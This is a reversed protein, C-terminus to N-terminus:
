EIRFVSWSQLLYAGAGTELPDVALILAFLARVKGDPNVRSATECRTDPTDWRPIGLKQACVHIACSCACIVCSM